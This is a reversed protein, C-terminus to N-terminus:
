SLDFIKAAEKLRFLYAKDRTDARASIRYRHAPFVDAQDLIGLEVLKKTHARATRGAVAAGAAIEQNTKWGPTQTMFVFIRAMHLSVESAEM